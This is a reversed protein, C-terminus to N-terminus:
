RQAKCARAERGPANVARLAANKIVDVVVPCAGGRGM